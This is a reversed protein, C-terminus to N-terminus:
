RLRARLLLRRDRPQADPAELEAAGRPAGAGDWVRLEAAAGRSHTLACPWVCPLGPVRGLCGDLPGRALPPPTARKAQWLTENNPGYRRYVCDNADLRSEVAWSNFRSPLEYVYIAPRVVTAETARAEVAAAAAAAPAYPGALPTSCDEGAWGVDCRCYGRECAGRGSCQNLCFSEVPLECRRGAADEYCQCGGVRLEAARRAARADAPDLDCWALSKEAVDPPAGAWLERLRAAGLAREFEPPTHNARSWLAWPEQVRFHAWGPSQWPYVEDVGKWECLFMHREPYRARPGCVCRGSAGDCRGACRSLLRTFEACKAGRGNCTRREENCKLGAATECAAGSWGRRCVCRGVLQSCHGRGSCGAVCGAYEGSAALRAPKVALAAAEGRSPLPASVLRRLAPAWITPDEAPPMSVLRARGVYDLDRHRATARGEAERAAAVPAAEERAGAEPAAAAPAHRLTPSPVSSRPAFLWVLSGAALIAGTYRVSGGRREAPRAAGAGRGGARRILPAEEASM